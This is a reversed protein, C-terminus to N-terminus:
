ATWRSASHVSQAAWVVVGTSPAGGTVRSAVFFLYDNNTGLAGPGFISQHEDSIGAMGTYSNIANGSGDPALVIQNTDFTGSPCSGAGGAGNAACVSISAIPPPHQAQAIPVWVAVLVFVLIYNISTRM